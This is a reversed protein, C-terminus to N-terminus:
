VYELHHGFRVKKAALYHRNKNGPKVEIQVRENVNIGADKLAKEKGPNNTMLRIGRIGLDRIIAAATCYDREDPQHGLKINADVTDYGQDQLHYAKIKEVLGIGRGEQRLYILVGGEEAIRKMAIDLQDKCDCRSSLLVEGTFCESHIRVLANDPDFTKCSIVAAHPQEPYLLNDYLILRFDGSRSPFNSEALRITYHVKMWSVLEDVSIIKLNYQRAIEELRPLKAMSGNEDLIECLVGSPSCGALRALDSAAETHGERNLVGGKKAILPFIHGPRLLDEPHTEPDVITKITAARDNASIGTSTRNKADVSVTFATSYVSTNEKVMPFLELERAREETISQCLLGRGHTVMFNVAEPTVKDAAMIFDGENERNKNDTVILIKGQQIEEVATEITAFVEDM